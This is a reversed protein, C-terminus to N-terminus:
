ALKRNKVFVREIRRSLRRKERTKVLTKEPSAPFSARFLTKVDTLGNEAMQAATTKYRNAIDTRAGRRALIALMASLEPRAGGGLLVHLATNGGADVADVDPALGLALDLTAASGSRAAALLVNTGDAAVVGARAGAAVLLTMVAPRGNAAAVLL